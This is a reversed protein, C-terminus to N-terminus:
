EENGAKQRLFSMSLITFVFAQLGGVFVDFYAHLPAPIAVRLFVPFLGYILGMIITGGLLNGFLRFSLSVPLAVESIINIPLFVPIPELYEKLYKRKKRVISLGHILFFTNLGLGLTVALDATPPRFGLLGTLNSILIFAFVGFFYPGLFELETGMTDRAFNAMMEVMTEAVNQLSKAKPADVFKRLKIRVVVAFIILAAMVFWTSVVTKTLYITVGGIHFLPAYIRNTFNM